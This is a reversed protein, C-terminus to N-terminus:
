SQIRLHHSPKEAEFVGVFVYVCIQVAVEKERTKNRKAKEGVEM